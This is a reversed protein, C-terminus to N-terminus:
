TNSVATLHTLRDITVRTTGDVKMRVSHNNIVASQLVTLEIAKNSEVSNGSEEMITSEFFM